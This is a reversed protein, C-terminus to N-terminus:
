MAASLLIWYTWIGANYLRPYSPCIELYEAELVRTGYAQCRRSKEYCDKMVFSAGILGVVTSFLLKPIGSAM